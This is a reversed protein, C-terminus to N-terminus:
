KLNGVIQQRQQLIKRLKRDESLSKLTELIKDAEPVSEISRLDVKKVEEIKSKFSNDPDDEDVFEVGKMAELLYSRENAITRLLKKKNIWELCKKCTAASPHSATYVPKVKANCATVCKVGYATTMPANEAVTFVVTHEPAQDQSIM